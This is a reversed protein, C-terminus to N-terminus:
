VSSCKFLIPSLNTTFPFNTFRINKVVQVLLCDVYGFEPKLSLKLTHYAFTSTCETNPMPFVPDGCRNIYHDGQERTIYGISVWKLSVFYENEIAIM